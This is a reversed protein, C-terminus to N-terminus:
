QKKKKYETHVEKKSGCAVAILLIIVFPIASRFYTKM